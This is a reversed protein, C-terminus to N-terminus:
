SIGSLGFGSRPESKQNRAPGPSGGLSQYDHTTSLERRLEGTANIIRIRNPCLDSPDRM